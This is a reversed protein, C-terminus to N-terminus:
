GTAQYASLRQADLKIPKHEERCPRFRKSPLNGIERAFFSSKLEKDFKNYNRRRRQKM